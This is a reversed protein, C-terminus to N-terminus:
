VCLFYTKKLMQNPQALLLLTLNFDQLGFILLNGVVFGNKKAHRHYGTFFSSKGTPSNRNSNVEKESGQRISKLVGVFDKIYEEYKM